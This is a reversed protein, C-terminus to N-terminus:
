PSTPSQSRSRAPCVSSTMTRTAETLRGAPLKLASAVPLERRPLAPALSGGHRGAGDHFNDTQWTRPYQAQHLADVAARDHKPNPLFGRGGLVYRQFIEFFLVFVILTLFSKVVQGLPSLEVAGNAGTQYLANHWSAADFLGDEFDAKPPRRRGGEAGPAAAAAPAAAGAGDGADESAHVRRRPLQGADADAM